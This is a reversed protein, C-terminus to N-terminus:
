PRRTGDGRYAGAPRGRACGRRRRAHPSFGRLGARGDASFDGARALRDRGGDRRDPPRERLAPCHVEGAGQAGPGRGRKGQAGRRGPRMRGPASSILMALNLQMGPLVPCPDLEEVALPTLAPLIESAFLSDLFQKQSADAHEVSLLSIGKDALLGLVDAIGQYQEQVMKLVRSSIAALQRTPTLGSADKAIIGAEKQQRLGAVRIMYFEDLNSGVISLFKLRELPPVDKDLGERLVRDNFELWSLERNVFLEPSDLDIPM